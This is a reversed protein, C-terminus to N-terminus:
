HLDTTTETKSQPAPERIAQWLLMIAGTVLMSDAINFNPWTFREHRWRFLIWDRVGSSWEVPMGPEVWLGLRDYLNGLIGAMVCSLAVTLWASTAARFYFLWIPIAIAAAISLLAFVRGWGGGFGFLAGPNIATEVGIFPEVVWWISHRQDGYPYGRWAFICQKTLLDIACGLAAITAFILYRNRPVSGAGAGNIASSKAPANSASLLTLSRM